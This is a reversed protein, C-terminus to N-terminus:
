VTKRNNVDVMRSVIAAAEARTISTLPAFTGKEDNGTLVGARYLKYVNAAYSDNMSVDPISRDPVDNMRELGEDPLARAFIDAFQARSAKANMDLNAYVDDIIQNTRAYDVYVKYWDTGESQDFHDQGTTYLSHIRAAMTIAQALTVSGQPDFETNSIGIMLGRKYVYSVDDYYWADSPVDTFGISSFGYNSVFRDWTIETIENVDTFSIDTIGSTEGSVFYQYFPQIAQDAPFELSDYNDTQWTPYLLATENDYLKGDRVDFYCGVRYGSDNYQAFLGHTSFDTTKVISGSKAMIEGLKVVASDRWTLIHVAYYPFGPILILLEPIGDGDLDHLAIRDPLNDLNSETENERPYQRNLVYDRYADNYAWSVADAYYDTTYVDTFEPILPSFSVFHDSSVAYISWYQKEDIKKLEVTAYYTETYGASYDIVDMLPGFFCDYEVYYYVGDYKVSQLNIDWMYEDFQEPDFYTYYYGEYIYNGTPEMEWRSILENLDDQTCNLINKMIWDIKVIDSVTYSEWKHMPDSPGDWKSWVAVSSLGPYKDWFGYMPIELLDSFLNRDTSTIQKCNYNGDWLYGGTFWGLLDVLESRQSLEDIMEKGLISDWGKYRFAGLFTNLSFNYSDFKEIYNQNQGYLSLTNGSYDADAFAIHGYDGIDLVVIDGRRIDEKNYILEFKDSANENRKLNWCGRAERNGTQLTLGVQHWLLAAGDWCQNGYANDVDYGNGFTASRFADYSSIPVTQYGNYQAAYVNGTMMPMLGITMAFVLMWSLVTRKMRTTMKSKM